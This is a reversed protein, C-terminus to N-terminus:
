KSLLYGEGGFDDLEIPIRAADMYKQQAVNNSNNNSRKECVPPSSPQFNMPIEALFNQEDSEFMQLVRDKKKTKLAPPPPLVAAAAPAQSLRRVRESRSGALLQNVSLERVNIPDTTGNLNAAVARAGSRNALDYATTSGRNRINSRPIHEALDSEISKRTSQLCVPHQSSIPSLSRREPTQEAPLIFSKQGFMNSIDLPEKHRRQPAKVLLMKSADLIKNARDLSKRMDEDSYAGRPSRHPQSAM